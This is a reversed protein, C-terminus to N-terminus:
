KVKITRSTDEECLAIGEMLAEDVRSYYKGKKARNHLEYFGGVNSTSRGIVKDPGKRKRLIKVTRNGECEFVEANVLGKFKKTGPKYTFSLSVPSLPCGSPDGEGDIGPCLDVEDPIGDEDDDQAELAGIDSGDGGPVNTISAIDAPRFFSRQDNSNGAAIGADLAPSGASLAQTETPGGNDSLPELQPDAVLPSLGGCGNPFSINFGGDTEVAGDCNPEDNNNELITDTITEIGQASVSASLEATNEAITDGVATLSSAGDRDYIGGGRTTATAPAPAIATATNGSITSARITMTGGYGNGIGGGAAFASSSPDNSAVEAVATNGSITSRLITLTGTINFIGGGSADAIGAGSTATHSASVTNGTITSDTITMTGSLNTIGGGTPAPGQNPQDDENVVVNDRVIVNDLDLTGFNAIGSGPQGINESRGNSITVGSISATKGSGVNVIRFAAATDDRHIDLQGPGPGNIEINSTIPTLAGTLTIIGSATIDITDDGYPLDTAVCGAGFNSNINASTIAENLSCDTASFEDTTDVTLTAAGATSPVLLAAALGTLVAPWAFQARLGRGM